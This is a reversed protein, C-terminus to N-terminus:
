VPLANIYQKKYCTTTTAKYGIVAVNNYALSAMDQVDWPCM